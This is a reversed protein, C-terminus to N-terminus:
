GFLLRRCPSLKAFCRVTAGVDGMAVFLFVQEVRVSVLDELM